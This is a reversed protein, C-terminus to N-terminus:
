RATPERDAALMPLPGGSPEAAGHVAAAVTLSGIRLSGGLSAAALYGLVAMRVLDSAIMVARRPLRDVVVGGPRGRGGRQGPRARAGGGLRLVQLALAVFLVQNGYASTAQGLWYLRFSRGRLPELLLRARAGNRSM